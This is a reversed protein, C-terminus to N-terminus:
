GRDHSEQSLKTLDHIIKIYLLLVPFINTLFFTM